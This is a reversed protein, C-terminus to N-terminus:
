LAYTLFAWASDILSLYTRLRWMELAQRYTVTDADVLESAVPLNISYAGHYPLEANAAQANQFAEAPPNEVLLGRVASEGTVNFRLRSSGGLALNISRVINTCRMVFLLDRPLRQLFQNVDGASVDKYRERVKSREEKSMRQGTKQGSSSSRFTFLLSLTDFSDASVGLRLAARRGLAVDRRLLAKWLM